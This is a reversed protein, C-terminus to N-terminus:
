GRSKVRVVMPGSLAKARAHLFTELEDVQIYSTQLTLMHKYHAKKAQEALYAFKEVVTSYQIELIQSCRRLSVGSVLLKFLEENVDPKHQKYTAKATSTSFSKGCTKCKYRPIPQHNQKPKYYGMKKFWNKIPTTHNSCSPNPCIKPQIFM